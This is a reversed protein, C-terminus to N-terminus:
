IQKIYFYFIFITIKYIFFIIFLIKEKTLLIKKIYYKKLITIKNNYIGRKANKIM